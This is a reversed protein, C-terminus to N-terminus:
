IQSQIIFPKLQEGNMTKLVMGLREFITFYRVCLRELVTFPIENRLAKFINKTMIVYTKNQQSKFKNSYYHCTIYKLWNRKIGRQCKWVNIKFSRKSLNKLEFYYTIKYFLKLKFFQIKGSNKTNQVLPKEFFKKM